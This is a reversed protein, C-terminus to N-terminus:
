ERDRQVMRRFHALELETRAVELVGNKSFSCEIGERSVAEGVEDVTRIIERELAIAGATPHGM